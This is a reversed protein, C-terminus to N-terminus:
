RTQGTEAAAVKTERTFGAVVRDAPFTLLLLVDQETQEEILDWGDDHSVDVVDNSRQQAHKSLTLPVGDNPQGNLGPGGM